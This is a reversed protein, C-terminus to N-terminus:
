HLTPKDKKNINHLHIKVLAILSLIALIPASIQWYLVENKHFGFLTIQRIFMSFVFIEIVIISATLYASNLLSNKNDYDKQHILL